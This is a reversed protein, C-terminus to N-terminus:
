RGEGCFDDALRALVDAVAIVSSLSVWEVPAHGGDGWPGFIVTPIGAAGMVASDMWGSAGGFEPPRGLVASAAAALSKVIPQDTAIAYADRWFFLDASAQFGPVERRLRALLADLEAQVTERTEGPVTRREFSVTCSEPYTSLERGGTILSAHVSPRTLLEAHVKPLAERHYRDYAHLLHGANTIADVGEEFDSGHVAKGKVDVNIWAFGKHAV